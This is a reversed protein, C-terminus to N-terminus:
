ANSRVSIQEICATMFAGLVENDEHSATMFVPALWEQYTIERPLPHDHGLVYLKDVCVHERIAAPVVIQHPLADTLHHGPFVLWAHFKGSTQTIPPRPLGLRIAIEHSPLHIGTHHFHADAVGAGGMRNAVELFVRRGDDTEFFELHLCGQRIGLASVVKQAFQHREADFVQQFSGLPAGQAFEVPKNIYRSVVLNVLEGNCVLGDAHFIAGDIYEELQYDQRNEREWYDKLAGAATDFEEVGESSAGLRPKIITRGQWPLPKGSEPAAAFRPYAIGSDTLAEKMKVKDRVRELLMLEDGPLGLHQRIKFAELLGFESLSLLAEYRDARSTNAIIAEALPQDTGVVIRKCRLDAPLDSMQSAIGIYTIDHLDHDLAVRYNMKRYPVQHQILIKM